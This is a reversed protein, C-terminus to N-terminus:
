HTKAVINFFDFLMGVVEESQNIFRSHDGGEIEVYLHEMGLEKMRAVSQRSREVPVTADESGHLVLFPIHRIAEEDVYDASMGGGAAAALGAWIDPHRSAIYYTGSGGMSHGWLYTRNEDINFEDRVMDVVTVVDREARRDQPEDGRAGYGGRRTYGLPTVVIYGDREARDLFGEYGMVWDYQRGAGHLTVMLRNPTSRDYSTPVFLAYPITEGTEQMTYTRHQVRPDTVASEDDRAERQAVATNASVHFLALSLTAIRLRTTATMNPGGTHSAPAWVAGARLFTGALSAYPSLKLGGVRPDAVVRRKLEFWFSV